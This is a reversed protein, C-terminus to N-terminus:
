NATRRPISSGGRQESALAYTRTDQPWLFLVAAGALLGPLAEYAYQGLGCWKWTIFTAVGIAMSTLAAAERPSQGVANAVVIPTFAVGILGWAVLVLKFVSSSDSIAIGLAFLVVSLTAVKAARYGLPRHPLDRTIAASCCLILSDATSMTAAFLGALMVGVWTEALLGQAMTPLALEADFRASSPIYIRSLLGVMITSAYFFTFWTYYYWRFHSTHDANDLSIYRVAIHPQGVVVFGATFWGLIELLNLLVSENSFLEMYGPEVSVLRAHTAQWGGLGHLGVVWLMTMAGIMVISQAADTWISARIGGAFSYVLVIAAGLAAGTSLDWNLLIHLAKSGAKFQAAAYAGLFLVTLLGACRRLLRHDGGGWRALLGGYSHIEKSAAARRLPKLVILSAVLDGTIWGAMLWISSLGVTYTLGIMGIFMYGSNNTAVASLAALSPPTSKGAILYDEITARSKVLSLAGIVVFVLLFGVFSLLM